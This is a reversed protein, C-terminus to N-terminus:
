RIAWRQLEHREVERNQARVSRTRLPGWPSGQRNSQPEISLM